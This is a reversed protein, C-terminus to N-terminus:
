LAIRQEILGLAIVLDHRQRRPGPLPGTSQECQDGSPYVAASTRHPDIHWQAVALSQSPDILAALHESAAVVRFRRM